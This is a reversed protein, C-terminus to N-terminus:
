FDGEAVQLCTLCQRRWMDVVSNRDDLCFEVDYKDKIHKIYIELKVEVDNRYDGDKRMFLNKNIEAEIGTHKKLWEITTERVGKTEERGTVLLIKYRKQEFLDIINYCFTNLKDLSINIPYKFSKWDKNGNTVFKRRETIDCLTGDLDCIIAKM